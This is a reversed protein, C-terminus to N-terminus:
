DLMDPQTRISVFSAEVYSREIDQASTLCGLCVGRFKAANM